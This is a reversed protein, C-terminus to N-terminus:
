GIAFADGFDQNFGGSAGAGAYCGVGGAAAFDDVVAAIPQDNWRPISVREGGGDAMEDFIRRPPPLHAGAAPLDRKFAEGEALDCGFGQPEIVQQQCFVM